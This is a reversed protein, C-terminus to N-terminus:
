NLASNVIKHSRPVRDIDWDAIAHQWFQRIEETSDGHVFPAQGLFQWAAQLLEGRLASDLPKAFTQKSLKDGASNLALPLHAYRPTAFELAQQLYLQRPTNDLLDSGRVVESIGQHADDVVVALQYAYLGDRRKVIFDGVESALDQSVLGQIKDVCSFPASTQEEVRLRLATAQSFQQASKHRCTGAYVYGCNSQTANALVKKRTCDCRYLLGKTDLLDLYHEFREFHNSQFTVTDDWEFGFNELTHQIQESAGKQVRPLDVDEMRLLWKGEAAKAQLYSGMAALLSGFHLPGSPTPAFRGIYTTPATM